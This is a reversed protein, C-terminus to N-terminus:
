AVEFRCSVMKKWFSIGYLYIRECGHKRLAEGYDKKRIQNIAEEALHSLQANSLQKKAKSNKVEVVLGPLSTDKPFLIIDCRGTGANVESSVVYRDFLVSLIGTIINHYNREEALDFYSMSSLTYEKLLSEISSTNGRMIADRLSMAIDMDKEKTKCGIIELRFVDYIERNPVFFCVEESFLDHEDYRFSLYGAQTLFSLASGASLGIEDYNLNLNLRARLHENNLFPLFDNAPNGDSLLISILGNTGSNAWYRRYRRENAFNLISWPNFVEEGGGYYYGGYEKSLEGATTPLEYDQIIQSVEKENFGFHKALFPSGISAVVLNNLGSFLSEKSIQMVGSVLAFYLDDNGKLADGYLGKFFPMTEQITRAEYASELPTDYEDILLIVQSQYHLALFHTLKQISAILLAEDAEKSCVLDYERKESESLMPSDHLEPFRLYLSHIRQKARELVSVASTQEVGKMNLHVVPYRNMKASIIDQRKAIAKDQFLPSSDEKINFFFDVMSLAISKGFRRPRTILVSKYECQTVLDEILLTKDVYYRQAAEKFNEIGIPLPKKDM